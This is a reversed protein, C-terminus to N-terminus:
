QIGAVRGWSELLKGLLAKRAGTVSGSNAAIGPAPLQQTVRLALRPLFPGLSPLASVLSPARGKDCDVPLMGPLM